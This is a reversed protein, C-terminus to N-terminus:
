MKSNSYDRNLSVPKRFNKRCLESKPFASHNSSLSDSFYVPSRNFHLCSKFDLNEKFGENRQGERKCSKCKQLCIGEVAEKGLVNVDRLNTGDHYRKRFHLAVNEIAVLIGSVVVASALVIFLGSVNDLTMSEPLIHFEERNVCKRVAWKNWLRSLVNKEQLALIAQSISTTLPSNKPLAIGYGSVGFPKGVLRLSCNMQMSILYELYPKDEM